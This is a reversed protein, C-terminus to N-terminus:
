KRGGRRGGKGGKTPSSARFSDDADNSGPRTAGASSNAAAGKAQEKEREEGNAEGGAAGGNHAATAAAGANGASDGRLDLSKHTNTKGNGNLHGNTHAQATTVAEGNATPTVTGNEQVEADAAPSKIEFLLRVLSHMEDQHLSAATPSRAGSATLNSRAYERARAIMLTTEMGMQLGERLTLPEERQCLAAYRPILLNRDIDHNQYTAIRDIDDLELKELERIVLKKVEAFEWQHALRLIVKWDSVSTKYLSGCSSRLIKVRSTLSL